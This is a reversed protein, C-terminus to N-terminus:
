NGIRKLQFAKSVIKQDGKIDPIPPTTTYLTIDKKNSDYKWAYLDFGANSELFISNEGSTTALMQASDGDYPITYKKFTDFNDITGDANFRIKKSAIEAPFTIEYNGAIAIENLCQAFSYASKKFPYTKKNETSNFAPEAGKYFNHKLVFSSDSTLTLLYETKDYIDKLTYNNGKKTYSATMKDYGAFFHVTDKSFHFEPILYPMRTIQMKKSQILDLAYENVYYGEKLAQYEKTPNCSLHLFGILFSIFLPKLYSM